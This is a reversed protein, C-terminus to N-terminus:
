STADQKYLIHLSSHPLHFGYELLDEKNDLHNMQIKVLPPLTKYESCWTTQWGITPVIKGVQKPDVPMQFPDPPYYFKFSLHEVGELLIITQTPESMKKTPHPWIGLCLAHHKKDIFLRGLVINSLLPNNRPGDDFTFVLSPGDLSDKTSSTFFYRPGEIKQFIRELYQKTYRETLIPWKDTEMKEQTINMHRYWFFLAELLLGFLVLSLLLEMLTFTRKKM